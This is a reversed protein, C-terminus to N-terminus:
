LTNITLEDYKNYTVDTGDHCILSVNNYGLDGPTIKETNFIVYPEIVQTIDNQDDDIAQLIPSPGKNHKIITTYLKGGIAFTVKYKNKGIMTVNKNLKQSIMLWFTTWLLWCVTSFMKWNFEINMTKKLERCKQIRNYQIKLLNVHQRYYNSNLWYGLFVAICFWYFM